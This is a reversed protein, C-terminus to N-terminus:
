WYDGEKLGGTTWAAASGREEQGGCSWTEGGEEENAMAVSALPM